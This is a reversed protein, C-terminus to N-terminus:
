IVKTYTVFGDPELGDKQYISKADQNTTLVELTIEAARDKFQEELWKLFTGGYGHHRSTPCIYLEDLVLINGGEENCWYASVLAYGISEGSQSDTFLYGWLNEHKEIVRDFTARATIENFPKKTAHSSYFENCLRLFTGRDQETFEKILM